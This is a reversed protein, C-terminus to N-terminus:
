VADILKRRSRAASARESQGSAMAEVGAVIITTALEAYAARTLPGDARFWTHHWNLMGFLSMAVPKILRRGVGLAPNIELLVRAFRQVIEREIRKLVNQQQEPLIGLDNMQVKHLADADEYVDLVAGVMAQLRRKPDAEGAEAAAVAEALHGLHSALMDYLLVEKSKYYHYFLAKSIGCAEGIEAMTTRPYGREAFLEASRALILRRKDDYDDARPRAM